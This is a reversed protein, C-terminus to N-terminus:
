SPSHTPFADSLEIPWILPPFLVTRKCCLCEALPLRNSFLRQSSSQWNRKKHRGRPTPYAPSSKRPSSDSTRSASLPQVVDTTTCFNPPSNCGLILRRLPCIGNQSKSSQQARYSAISHRSSGEVVFALLVDRDCKPLPRRTPNYLSISAIVFDVDKATPLVINAQVTTEQSCCHPYRGSLEGLHM